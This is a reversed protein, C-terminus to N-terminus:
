IAIGAQKEVAALIEQAFDPADVARALVMAGIMSAYLALAAERKQADDDGPQLPALLAVQKGGPLPAYEEINGQWGTLAEAEGGGLPLRHLQAKGREARDSLFYLWAGDPSWKPLREHATGATLRRPASRGETAVLWLATQRHKEPRGLPGAAYAVFRGDPSLQPDIGNTVYRLGTGDANVIYIAGGSHTQFVLQGSGNGAAPQVSAPASAAAGSNAAAGSAAPALLLDIGEVQWRGNYKGTYVVVQRDEPQLTAHVQYTVDSIWGTESIEFDTVPPNQLGSLINSNKVDDTLYFNMTDALEPRTLTTLFSRAAARALNTELDDVAKTTSEQALASGASWGLTAILALFLIIRSVQYTIRSM